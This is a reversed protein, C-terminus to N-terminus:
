YYYFFFMQINRLHAILRHIYKCARRSVRPQRPRSAYGGLGSHLRGSRYFLFWAIISQLINIQLLSSEVTSVVYECVFPKSHANRPIFPSTHFYQYIYTSVPQNLVHTHIHIAFKFYENYKVNYKIAALKKHFLEDVFYQWM